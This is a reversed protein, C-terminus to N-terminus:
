VRVREREGPVAVLRREAPFPRADERAGPLVASARILDGLGARVQRGVGAADRQEDGAGGFALEAGEQVDAAVPPRDQGLAAAAALRDLAVVVRPRIPEVAREARRRARVALRAELLLLERENRRADADPPREQEDVRVRLGLRQGVPEALQRLDEGAVEVEVGDREMRADLEARVGVPLHDGLVEELAVVARGRVGAEACDDVHMRIAVDELRM